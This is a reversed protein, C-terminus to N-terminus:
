IESITTKVNPLVTGNWVLNIQKNAEDIANKANDRRREDNDTSFATETQYQNPPMEITVPRLLGTVEITVPKLLGTAFLKENTKETKNEVTVITPPNNEVPMSKDTIESNDPLAIMTKVEYRVQAEQMIKKWKENDTAIRTADREMKGKQGSEAIIIVLIGVVVFIVLCFLYIDGTSIENQKRNLEEEHQRRKLSDEHQKQKWSEEQKRKLNEENQKQRLEEERKRRLDAEYQNQRPAVNEQRALERDYKQRKEFNSLIAYAKNIEAM